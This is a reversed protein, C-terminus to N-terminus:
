FYFIFKSFQSGYSLVLEVKSRRVTFHKNPGKNPRYSSIKQCDTDTKHRFRCMACIDTGRFSRLFYQIGKSIEM